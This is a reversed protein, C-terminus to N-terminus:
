SWAQGHRRISENINMQRHSGAEYGLRKKQRRTGYSIDGKMDTAIIADPSSMVLKNFFRRAKSNKWKNEASTLM